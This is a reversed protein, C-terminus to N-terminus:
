MIRIDAHLKLSHKIQFARSAFVMLNRQTHYALIHREALDLDLPM